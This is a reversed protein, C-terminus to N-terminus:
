MQLRLLLLLPVLLLLCGNGRCNIICCDSRFIFLEALLHLIPLHPTNRNAGSAVRLSLHDVHNRCLPQSCYFVLVLGFGEQRVGSM